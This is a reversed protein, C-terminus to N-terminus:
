HFLLVNEKMRQWIICNFSCLKIHFLVLAFTVYIIKKESALLVVSLFEKKGDWPMNELLRLLSHAATYIVWRELRTLHYM